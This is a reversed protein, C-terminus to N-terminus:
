SVVFIFIKKYKQKDRKGIQNLDHTERFKFFRFM